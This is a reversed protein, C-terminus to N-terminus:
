RKIGISLGFGDSPYPYGASENMIFWDNSLTVSGCRQADANGYLHWWGFLTRMFGQALIRKDTPVSEIRDSLLMACVSKHTLPEINFDSYAAEFEEIYKKSLTMQDVYPLRLGHLIPDVCAEADPDDSKARFVAMRISPSRSPGNWQESTLGVQHQDPFWISSDNNTRPAGRDRYKDAEAILEDTTIVEPPLDWYLRGVFRSAALTRVDEDLWDVRDGLFGAARGVNVLKAIEEDTNIHGKRFKDSLATGGKRYKLLGRFDPTATM